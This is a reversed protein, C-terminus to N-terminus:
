GTKFWHTCFSLRQNCQEKIPLLYRELFLGKTMSTVVEVVRVVKIAIIKIQIIIKM